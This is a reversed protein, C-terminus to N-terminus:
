SLNLNRQKTARHQGRWPNVSAPVVGRQKGFGQCDRRSVHWSRVFRCLHEPKIRRWPLPQAATQNSQYKGGPKEEDKVTVRCLRQRHPPYSVSPGKNWTNDPLFAAPCAPWAFFLVWLDRTMKEDAGVPRGILCSRATHTQPSGRPQFQRHTCVVGRIQHATNKGKTIQLILCAFM